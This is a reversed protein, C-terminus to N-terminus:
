KFDIDKYTPRNWICIRGAIGIPLPALVLLLLVAIGLEHSM